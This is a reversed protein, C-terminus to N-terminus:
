KSVFLSESHIFEDAQHSAGKVSFPKCGARPPIPIIQVAVTATKFAGPAAEAPREKKQERVNEGRRVNSLRCAAPATNASFQM